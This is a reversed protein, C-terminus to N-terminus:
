WGCFSAFKALAGFGVLRSSAYFGALRTVNLQTFPLQVSNGATAGYVSSRVSDESLHAARQTAYRQRIVTSV